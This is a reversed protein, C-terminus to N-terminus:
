WARTALIDTPPNQLLKTAVSGLLACGVGTRGHTGMVLLDPKIRQAEGVITERVSGQVSNLHFEAGGQAYKHIFSSFEEDIRNRIVKELERPMDEQIWVDMALDETPIHYAHVFHFEANPGLQAAMDLARRSSVSFDTAVLVRSYPKTAHETVTLIPYETYRLFREATSGVFFDKLMDSRHVGLIVLDTPERKAYRAIDPFGKGLEIQISVDFGDVDTLTSIQERIKRATDNQLSETVDRPLDEDLVHLIRLSASFQKTLKVARELARDSRPSLDTVLLLKNMSM